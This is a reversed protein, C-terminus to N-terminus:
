SRADVRRARRAAARRRRAWLALGILLGVAPGHDARGPRIACTSELDEPITVEGMAPIVQTITFVTDGTPDSSSDSAVAAVHLWIPGVSEPPPTWRVRLREVTLACADSVAVTRDDPLDVVHVADTPVEPETAPCLDAPTPNPILELTGAARGDARVIELAAASLLDDPFTVELDIPGGGPVYDEPWGELQLESPDLPEEARHCVACTFGDLRSGTFHRGGGGGQQGTEPAPELPGRDFTEHNSFARAGRPALLVGAALLSAPLLSAALLTASLLRARTM